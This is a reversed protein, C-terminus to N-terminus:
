LLYIFVLSFTARREHARNTKMLVPSNIPSDQIQVRESDASNLLWYM